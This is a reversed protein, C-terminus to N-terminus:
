KLFMEELAQAIDNVAGMSRSSNALVAIAAKREPFLLLITSTGSQHGDHYQVPGLIDDQAIIWGLGYSLKAEEELIPAILMQDQSKKSILRHHMIAQAFRLLDGVTSHVGGAPYKISLNTEKDTRFGRKVKKYLKAKNPYTQGFVETSTYMMGAAQWIYQDMYAQYSMGSVEELIAGLVTYGYSSYFYETGPTSRLGRNRFVKTGELLSPYETTPRNELGRYTKIGSTHSLLHRITIDGESKPPFDPLYTQIPVDLDLDGNEVMHMIATATMPKTVSALRHLMNSDAQIKAEVDLYGFGGQWAISDEVLVAASVGVLAESQIHKQLLIDAESALPDSSLPPISLTSCSLLLVALSLFLVIQKM